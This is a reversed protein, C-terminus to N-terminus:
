KVKDLFHVIAVIVGGFASIAVGATAIRTIISLARDMTGGVSGSEVKKELADFRDQTVFKDMRESLARIDETTAMKSMGERMAELIGQVYRLHIDLAEISTAAPRDNMDGMRRGENM